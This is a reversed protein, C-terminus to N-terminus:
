KISYNGSYAMTHNCIATSWTGKMQGSLLLLLCSVMLRKADKDVCPNFIIVIQPPMEYSFPEFTLQKGICVLDDVIILM